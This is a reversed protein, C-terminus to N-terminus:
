GSAREFHRNMTPALDLSFFFVSGDFPARLIMRLGRL